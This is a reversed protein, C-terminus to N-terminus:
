LRTSKYDFKKITETAQRFKACCKGAVSLDYFAIADVSLFANKCQYHNIAYNSLPSDMVILLNIHIVVFLSFSALYHANAFSTELGSVWM